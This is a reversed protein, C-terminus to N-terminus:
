KEKVGGYSEISAEFAADSTYREYLNCRTVIRQTSCQPNMKSRVMRVLAWGKMEDGFEDGVLAMGDKTAVMDKIKVERTAFHCRPEQENGELTQQAVFLTLSEGKELEAKKLNTVLAPKGDVTSLKQKISTLSGESVPIGPMLLSPRQNKTSYVPALQFALSRFRSYATGEGYFHVEGAMKLMTWLEASHKTRMRVDFQGRTRREPQLSHATRLITKGGRTYFTVGARRVSGNMLLGTTKQKKM